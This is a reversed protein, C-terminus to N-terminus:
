ASRIHRNVNEVTGNTWPSYAVTFNHQIRHDKALHEMVQNKFHSGQDSVWFFMATFTHIWRSLERAATESNASACPILWVYSSLDDKIVLVYRLGETSQGLYLFDFHVVENPKSAHLTLSLPRPIKLGAKSMVCHICNAVFSSTDEDMSSWIFEESLVALTSETGRHGAHGCHSTILLRWQLDDAEDPVWIKGRIVICGDDNTVASDPIKELHQKQAQLIDPMRPWIFHEELPSPVIDEQLLRHCVRKISARHGRYGRLWRTMFDPM